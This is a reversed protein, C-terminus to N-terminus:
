PEEGKALALAARADDELAIHENQEVRAASNPAGVPKSRFAPAIDLYHRVILRLRTGEAELRAIREADTM